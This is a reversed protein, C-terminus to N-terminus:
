DAKKLERRIRSKNSTNNELVFCQRDYKNDSFYIYVYPKYYSKFDYKVKKIYSYSKKLGGLRYFKRNKIIKRYRIWKSIYESHFLEHSFVECYAVVIAFWSIIPILPVFIGVIGVVVLVVLLIWARIKNVM